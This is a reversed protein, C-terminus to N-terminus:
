SEKRVLRFPRYGSKVSTHIGILPAREDEPVYTRILGAALSQWDTREIDKTRKLTIHWGNGDLRTADAMRNRIATEIVEAQKESTAISDKLAAYAQVAEELGGDAEITEGSDQPWRRKVSEISEEFPGGVALRVRFDEALAVMGVFVSEDHELDFCELENGHLMAVHARPYGAVGMQWRVQAEIDQALGDPRRSRWKAEVITREGVREFDLSTAAWPITAHTIFRNVKRLRIGHELEDERRIVPEFQQGLRMARARREDPFDLQGQKERALEGESKYPSLGLIIPLDTSTIVERRAELWAATDRRLEITM